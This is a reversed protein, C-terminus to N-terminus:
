KGKGRSKSRAKEKHIHQMMRERKHQQRPTMKNRRGAYPNENGRLEIKIPTGFLQLERRFIRELYRCYSAPLADVQNGHIVIIPPNSGGPHAYRLKIRRGNVMPPPHTAVADQLIRTLRPTSLDASAAQYANDISQYLNGVGTGHLASIYHFEAFDIFHLRRQVEQKIRRRQGHELGDWKNMALVLARGSDVAYSLLHLDQDVIGEQADMVLVAVNADQIAQLSKVISFKEVTLSVNKRRRVGATDILTYRQGAREYDIYISDRTTGPQDYVVVREEGLMRNVLTSKGVNPRGVIAVKLGRQSDPVVDEPSPPLCELVHEVLSPVGRGHTASIPFIQGLGFEHFEGQVTDAHVGDIKNVVLLVEKGQVRLDKVVDLDGPNVGARADVLLLVLDAEDIAQMSQTVMVADIGQEVQATEGIGGTDIVLFRRGDHKAEGYRRDRTLGAHDAVLADRSRTLRNFLTSKGVNPRGVLAIVPLM